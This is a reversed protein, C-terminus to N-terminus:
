GGPGKQLIGCAIRDGADGAPDTKYDDPGDHIVVAAGDGDLLKGDVPLRANLMEFTVEGSAPVYINPLDGAHPGDESDIGHHTGEPNFHGGASKFPPECKGIEHVHIAHTGEPLGKLKAVIATGNEKQSLEVSGLPEGGSSMMAASATDGPGADASAAATLGASLVTAAFLFTRHTRKM